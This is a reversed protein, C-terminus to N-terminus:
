RKEVDPTGQILDQTASLVQREVEKLDGQIMAGAAPKHGGGRFSRAVSSVDLGERSRWSVKIKKEPQEIFIVAVKAGALRSLLNILDADDKGSYGTSHRDEITLSTWVIGETSQLKALGKEWYRVEVLPREDLGQFYVEHLKAGREMLDAAIRMVKPTVSDTRFGVTDTVLGTLLNTASNESVPISLHALLDYIIEATASASPQVLNTTAFHTNTPHHDINIDFQRPFDPPLGTRKLDGCDVAILLDFEEPIEQSVREAAPLFRFREPVGDLLLPVAKKGLEEIGLSLALMSGVADGDPRIHSLVVVTAAEDLLARIRDFQISV